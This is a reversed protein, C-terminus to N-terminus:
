KGATINAFDRKKGLRAIEAIAADESPKRLYSKTIKIIEMKTASIVCLVARIRDATTANLLKM